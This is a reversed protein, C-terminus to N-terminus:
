FSLWEKYLTVTWSCRYRSQERCSPMFELMCCTNKTSLIIKKVRASLTVHAVTKAGTVILGQYLIFKTIKIFRMNKSLLLILLYVTTHRTLIDIM